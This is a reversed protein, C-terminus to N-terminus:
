QLREDDCFDREFERPFLPYADLRGFQHQEFASAHAQFKMFSNYETESLLHMNAKILNIIRHNNPLITDLKKLDWVTYLNSAPDSLAADSRPGFTAWLSRNERLVRSIARKLSDASEFRVETGRDRIQREHEAKWKRLLEKPCEGPPAKDVRTHCTPCLLILNNYTNSGGGDRGRPGKPRKAIIHAMEGINYSASGELIVTLDERCGPNSCIGAARAWLLKYDVDSITM